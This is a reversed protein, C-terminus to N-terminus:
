DPCGDVKLLIKGLLDIAPGDLAFVRKASKGAIV